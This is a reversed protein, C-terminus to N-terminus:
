KALGLSVWDGGQIASQLKDRTVKMKQIERQDYNKEVHLLYDEINCKTQSACYLYNWAIMTTDQTLESDSTKDMFNHYYSSLHAILKNRLYDNENTEQFALHLLTFLEEQTLNENNIEIMALAYQQDAASKLWAEQLNRISKDGLLEKLEKCNHHIEELEISLEGSLHVKNEAIRVKDIDELSRYYNCKKLTSSIFYKAEASGSEADKIYKQYTILPPENSIYKSTQANPSLKVPTPKKIAENELHEPQNDQRQQLAPQDDNVKTDDLRIPLNQHYGLTLLIFLALVIVTLSIPTANRM